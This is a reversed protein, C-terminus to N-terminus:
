YDSYDGMIYHMNSIMKRCHNISKWFSTEEQEMMYYNASEMGKEIEAGFELLICLDTIRLYLDTMEAYVEKWENIINKM